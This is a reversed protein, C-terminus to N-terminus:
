HKIQEQNSLKNVFFNLCDIGCFSARKRFDPPGFELVFSPNNVTNGCVPCVKDPFRSELQSINKKILKGINGEYLDKELSKLDKYNLNDILAALKNM